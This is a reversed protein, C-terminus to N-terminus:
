LKFSDNMLMNEDIKRFHTERDNFECFPILGEKFLHTILEFAKESKVPYWIDPKMTSVIWEYMKDLEDDSISM